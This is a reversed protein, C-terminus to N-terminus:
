WGGNISSPPILNKLLYFREGNTCQNNGGGFNDRQDKGVGDQWSNFHALITGMAQQIYTLITTFHDERVRHCLRIHGHLTM